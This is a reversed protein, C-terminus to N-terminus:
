QQEVEQRVSLWHAPQPLRHPIRTAADGVASQV